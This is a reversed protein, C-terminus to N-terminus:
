IGTANTTTLTGNFLNSYKGVENKKVCFDRGPYKYPKCKKIRNGRYELYTFM